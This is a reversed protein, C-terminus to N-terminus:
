GLGGWDMGVLGLGDRGVGIWELGDRGMGVCKAYIDAQNMVM